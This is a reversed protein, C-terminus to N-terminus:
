PSVVASGNSITLLFNESGCSGTIGLHNADGSYSVLWRYRSASATDVVFSQNDTLAGGSGNLAVGAETYVPAAGDPACTDNDPGFLQFTVTGTPTGGAAATVTVSDQPRLTQATTLSAPARTILSAENADGCTGSVATNETNGSYSAVWAYKGPLLPTYTGSTATATTGDVRTAEVNTFTRLLNGTIGEAPDVCSTSTISTGSDFPGYLKFTVTGPTAGVPFYGNSITATDSIASGLVATATARTAIDPTEPIGAVVEDPDGCTANHTLGNTNPSDGSYVAVWHYEGAKTVVPHPTPDNYTGNGSVTVASSTHVLPGCGTDSPGYLTFTITGGAPAGGTGTLNIVPDAPQTATGGLAASDTVTGGVTADVGATTSLSPDVPNVTFCESALADSSGGIGGADNGGYVARWCYRGASTVYATPSQVTVPYTGTVSVSGVLTGGSTCLGPSDVKCLSFEVSGAASAAGGQIDIVASDAVAVVGTGISAGGVPVAGMTHPTTSTDTVVKPTTVTTSTCSGLPVTPQLITDKYDATDSNGTVTSPIINAFTRCSQVGGFVADTLNIAAEGGFGDSTYEAASVDANLQVGASLTLNPATGTWTRLFLNKSGGQQDWLIM